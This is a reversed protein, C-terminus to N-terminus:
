RDMTTFDIKIFSISTKFRLKNKCKSFVNKNLIKPKISLFMLKNSGSSHLFLYFFLVAFKLKSPPSLCIFDNGTSLVNSESELTICLKIKM